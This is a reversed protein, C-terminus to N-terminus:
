SMAAKFIAELPLYATLTKLEHEREAKAVGEKFKREFEMRVDYATRDVLQMLWKYDYAATTDIQPTDHVEKIQVFALQGNVEVIAIDGVKACGKLSKYTYRKGTSRTTPMDAPRQFVVSVTDYDSTVLSVLHRKNM